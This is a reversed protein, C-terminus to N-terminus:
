MYSVSGGITKGLHARLGVQKFWQLLRRIDEIHQVMTNSYVCVDDVFVVACQTLKAAQLEHDLIRQFIAASNAFGFPLRHPQHLLVVKQGVLM